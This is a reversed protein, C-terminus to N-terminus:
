WFATYVYPKPAAGRNQLPVDAVIGVVTFRRGEVVLEEGMADDHPWVTSVFAQNVVAVPPASLDDTRDFDRGRLLPTRLTEFYRPGVQIYGAHLLPEEFGPLSVDASLGWLAIGTGVMTVSEVEPLAELEEVARRVFDQARAPEYDVLRPRLRM